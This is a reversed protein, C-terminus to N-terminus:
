AALAADILAYLDAAAFPKRLVAAAGHSMAVTITHGEGWASVVIIPIAATAPDAKLTKLVVSGHMGPLGMDLLILDPLEARAAAVGSDGTDAELVTHGRAALQERLLTRILQDDDVTLIRAM